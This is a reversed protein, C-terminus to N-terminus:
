GEEVMCFLLLGRNGDEDKLFFFFDVPLIFSLICAVPHMILRQMSQRFPEFTHLDADNCFYRGLFIVSSCFYRGFRQQKSRLFVTVSKKCQLLGRLRWGEV